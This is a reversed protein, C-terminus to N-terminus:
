NSYSDFSTDQEDIIEDLEEQTYWKQTEKILIGNEFELCSVGQHLDIYDVFWEVLEGLPYYIEGTFWNAFVVKEGPFLYEIDVNMYDLIYGKWKVLFLKNDKIEWTAYYGRKCATNPSVIPHPLNIKKIYTELPQSHTSHLEGMYILLDGAQVTM